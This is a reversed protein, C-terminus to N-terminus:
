YSRVVDAIVGAHAEAAGKHSLLAERARAGAAKLHEPHELFWVAREALEAASSIRIGAGAGELLAKADLFDDMFPGYFAAKGWAAPELPNQGGLPVLSAGCFNITGAAYLRFLEGFTNIVVVRESRRIGRVGIETRLQYGLGRAKILNVIAPTRALHRPAIALVADPFHLAIRQFADLIQEEEGTRTSGAVFLPQSPLLNLIHQMEAKSAPNAELALLEYKANGNVRVKGPDAGMRLIRDADQRSIMTFADMQGLVDRFFPRLRIYKKISRPSIRGNALVTRIGMRRAEMIWAPWIETELFVMVQPRVRSLARRVCSPTDIPAYFVPEQRFVREAMEKGHPTTVSFLISCGPLMKRLHGSLVEAVRVEGLSAAHLWIRISANLGQFSRWPAFGLRERLGERWRGTVRAYVYFPPFCTIFMGSSLLSYAAYGLNM